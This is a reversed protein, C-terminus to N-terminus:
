YRDTCRGAATLVVGFLTKRGWRKWVLEIDVQIRRDTTYQRKRRWTFSVVRESSSCSAISWEEMKLVRHTLNETVM